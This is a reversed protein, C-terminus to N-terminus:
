VSPLIMWELQGLGLLRHQDRSWCYLFLITPSFLIYFLSSLILPNPFHLLLTAHSTAHFFSSYNYSETDSKLGHFFSFLFNILWLIAPRVNRPITDMCHGEKIKYPYEIWFRHFKTLYQETFINDFAKQVYLMFWLTFSSTCKQKCEQKCLTSNAIEWQNTLNQKKDCIHWM